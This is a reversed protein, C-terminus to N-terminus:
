DEVRIVSELRCIEPELHRLAAQMSKEPAAHTIFILPVQGDEVADKQMMTAISVNERAFCGAVRALVGPADSASVRIFFRTKWNDTFTLSADPEATNAFTPHVHVEATAAQLIDGVVASATPMDGAGRGQLMMEKCAHGHLYVANFSGDVRSLPHDKPLFTPHVRVEITSGDRKAIALLKLVYGMEKGCAIDMATVQTIGERYVQKFPVRAHFALSAMISLKYAADMGEVDSAPNPEALGLKQADRLVLDYDEGNQYMRSLIYNTTGNIIGMLKDIRNAQLPTMLTSIIPIAGCVSAEYYLGVRSQQAAAQLRHWNLAVAVKNATVVTKGNKLATLMYETAPQEGGMFEAVLSIEPDYLVDAPDTTLLEPPVSCSRAKTVDRVLVRKVRIAVHDRHAIEPAFGKLLEWVGGGVNGCGLFGIVVEKM